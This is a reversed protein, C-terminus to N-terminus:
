NATVLADVEVRPRGSTGLVKITVKRSVSTTWSGVWVVRQTGATSAYLDVTAVKAGNVYVVAKGRDPGTRAVWAVSRGTFTLSAKAGAKSSRKLVGGWATTDSVTSWSGSYRISANGEQRASLTVQPGTAWDSVNGAKDIGKVRFAYRHGTALSRTLTPATLSTSVTSWPGGDTQQQLWYRAIGSTADTGGWPVRLQIRGAVIATSPAFGRRPATVTAAVTDLVITDVKVPSWNGAADRWKVHVTRTGNTASLTWAQTAAYPRTTWATGDNSLAVQSLGSGVDTAATAVTVSTTTTYAAGSAISVTGAPAATDSGSVVVRKTAVATGGLVDTFEARVDWSGTTLGTVNLAVADGSSGISPQFTGHYTKPTATPVLRESSAAAVPTVQVDYTAPAGATTSVQVPVVAGAPAEAPASLALPPMRDVYGIETTAEAVQDGQPDLLRFRVATTVNGTMGIPPVDFAACAGGAVPVSLPQRDSTCTGSTTGRVVPAFAHTAPDDTYYVNGRATGSFIAPLNSAYSGGSGTFAAISSNYTESWTAGLYPLEPDTEPWTSTGAWGIVRADARDGFFEAVVSPTPAALSLTWAACGADQDTQVSEMGGFVRLQCGDLGASPRLTFSQGFAPTPDSLLDSAAWSQVAYNSTFPVPTGGTITLGADASWTWEIHGGERTVLGGFVRYEGAPSAPITFTWPECADAAVQMRLIHVSGGGEIGMRCRHAELLDAGAVRPTLTITEGVSGSAGTSVDISYSVPTEIPRELDSHFRVWGRIPKGDSAQCTVTFDAAFRLVTGDTDVVPAELVTFSGDVPVCGSGSRGVRLNPGDGSWVVDEYTGVVLPGEDPAVFTINWEAAEIRVDQFDGSATMDVPDLYRDSSAFSGPRGDLVLASPTKILQSLGYGELDIVRAPGFATSTLTLAATRSATTSPEFGVTITCSQGPDLSVVGCGDTVPFDAPHPGSAVVPQADVTTEGVNRVTITQTAAIEGAYTDPFDLRSTVHLINPPILSDIRISVYLAPGSTGTCRSRAFDAAFKTIVGDVVVPAELVTIAPNPTVCSDEGDDVHFMSNPLFHQGVTFPSSKEIEFTWGSGVITVHNTTGTATLTSPLRDHLMGDGVPNGVESDVIFGTFPPDAAAVAPALTVAIAMGFLASTALLTLAVRTARSM